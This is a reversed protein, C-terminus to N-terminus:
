PRTGKELTPLERWAATRELEVGRQAYRYLTLIQDSDATTLLSRAETLELPSAAGEEYRRAVLVYTRRAAEARVRSTALAAYAVRAAEHANLVEVTIREEADRTALRARELEARAAARRALATGGQFLDWSAVLSATWSRDREDLTWDDALWAVDVAGSLSPLSSGTAIRVGAGAAREGQAAQALEERRTLASHVAQEATQELPREFVSDPVADLPADPSRGAIRALERTAASVRERADALAQEVSARDARARHVAEPTVQGAALLRESVREHERVLALAAEQVGVLREASAASLWALQVEAALRRASARLAAREGALEAGALSVSARLPESVIPQTVRVHTEHARPLTLSLDTPFAPTGLLQNLASYAPNVFDGLDQVDHLRSARSEVRLSPLWQTLAATREAAARREAFRSAQLSTNRALTEKVLAGLPDAALAETAVLGLALAGLALRRYHSKIM